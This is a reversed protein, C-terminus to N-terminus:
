SIRTSVFAPIIQKPMNKSDMSIIKPKVGTMTENGIKPLAFRVLGLSM